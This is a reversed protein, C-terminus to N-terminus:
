RHSGRGHAPEPGIGSLRRTIGGNRGVTLRLPGTGGSLYNNMEALLLDQIEEYSSSEVVSASPIGSLEGFYTRTLYDFRITATVGDRLYKIIEVSGM